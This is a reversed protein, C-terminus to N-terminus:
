LTLTQGTPETEVLEVTQWEVREAAMQREVMVPVELVVTQVQQETLVMEVLLQLDVQEVAAVAEVELTQQVPLVMEEPDVQTLAPVAQEVQVELAILKDPEVEELLWLLVLPQTEVLQDQREVVVSLTLFQTWLTLRFVPWFPTVEPAVEVVVAVAVTTQQRAQQEPEVEVVVELLWLPALPQIM